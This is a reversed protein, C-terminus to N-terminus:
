IHSHLGKQTNDNLKAQKISPGVTREMHVTNGKEQGHDIQYSSIDHTSCVSLSSFGTAFTSYRPFNHYFRYFVVCSM